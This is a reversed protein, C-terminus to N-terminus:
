GDNGLAFSGVRAVGFDVSQIARLRVGGSLFKAATDRDLALSGWMGMMMDAWNGFFLDGATVLNSQRYTHGNLDSGNSDIIFGGQSATKTTTKFYGRMNTNSLYGTRGILANAAAVASELGVVEAWTPNAAAFLVSGIGATNKLGRPIGTAGSGQLGAVDIAEAMARVLQNRVYAEIDITSQQIMRRTVDTYAAVDKITMTVKRFTPVTEAANADESALWQATANVDGGPIEINGTLGTLTTVGMSLVASAARLNDIFRDAMHDVAQVNPTTGAGIAARSNHGVMSSRNGQSDIFDGWTNMLDTPLVYGDTSRESNRAAAECAELEFAANRRDGETSGDAMHGALRVLSFRQRETATLGIDRNVLPVDAPVVARLKGQFAAYSPINGARVSETIFQDALSRQNHASALAFIESMAAATEEARRQDTMVNQGQVINAAPAAARTEEQEQIEPPMIVGETTQDSNRGVGVNKDAPITVFSAETPKWRTVRYGSGDGSRETQHVEYGISVNRIIGAKIDNVIGALDDRKSFRVAAYVRANELWARVVVGIQARLGDYRNHNDLLPANGSNLWSLDVSEPTHVLVEAGEIRSVPEESSVPVIFVDDAAEDARIESVVMPRFIPPM